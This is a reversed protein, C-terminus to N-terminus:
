EKKLLGDAWHTSPQEHTEDKGRTKDRMLGRQQGYPPFRRRGNQSNVIPKWGEISAMIASIDYSDKRTMKAPDGGFCEAWIEMNCVFERHVSGVPPNDPSYFTLYSRRQGLDMEVWNPPLLVELYAEVLGQREDQEMAETQMREAYVSVSTDLYLTEGEAHRVKAEAWIQDIESQAMDWPTRGDTRGNVTVPWFRRNGTVDRLFGSESNTTGVIISTRPHMEVQRGYAPRYRDDTCTIFGKVCEIDAKRMGALEGLEMIWWGQLKESGSKDKMDTLTLSDSFWRGGLRAFLGSKGIGQPGSLILVHDFKIGPHMARAVAAVLTKRTVAKVYDTDEAGLADVLLTDLRPTGDWPPLGDLYERIPHFRRTLIVDNFADRTKQTSYIDYRASLYVLLCSFDMETWGRGSASWPLEGRVAVLCALEDYAIPKLTPDNALILRINEVTERIRGKGDVDLREKWEYNCLETGIDSHFNAKADRIREDVITKRVRSDKSVFDNMARISPRRAMETGSEVNGDLNGFRHIRVLDYANWLRGYAPDTAHHSYAWRDDYVILGGRSDAQIYSWREERDTPEYIDSLFTGIAETMSYTRCFAGVLGQKGVPDEAVKGHAATSDEGKTKPLNAVDRWDPVSALVRDPNLLARSSSRMCIYEGDSPTSPWFMLQAPRFSVPDFNDIGWRSAWIRAVANYADPGVDEALPVIVRFRPKQPTHGHTTYVVLDCDAEAVIRTMLSAEANDADLTLLSRCEVHTANRVNGRLRGGVFGGHDKAALRERGKMSAYERASEGTRVPAELRSALEEFTVETNRWRRADVRDGIAIGYKRPLYDGSTSSM